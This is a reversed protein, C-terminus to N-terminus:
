CPGWAIADEVLDRRATYSCRGSGRRKRSGEERESRGRLVQYGCLLEAVTEKGKTDVVMSDDSVRDAYPFAFVAPIFEYEIERNDDRLVFRIPRAIAFHNSLQAPQQPSEFFLAAEQASLFRADPVM